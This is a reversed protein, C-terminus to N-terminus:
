FGFLSVEKMGKGSRSCINFCPLSSRTEPKDNFM